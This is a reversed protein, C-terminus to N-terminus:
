LTIQKLGKNNNNKHICEYTYNENIDLDKNMENISLSVQRFIKWNFIGFEFTCFAHKDRKYLYHSNQLM